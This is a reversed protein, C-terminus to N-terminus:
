SYDDSTDPHRKHGNRRKDEHYKKKVSRDLYSSEEEADLMYNQKYRKHGEHEMRHQPKHRKAGRKDHAILAEM